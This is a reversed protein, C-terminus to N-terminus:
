PLAGHRLYHDILLWSPAGVELSEDQCHKQHKGSRRALRIRVDVTKIRKALDALRRFLVPRAERRVRRGRALTVSSIAFASLRVADTVFDDVLLDLKGAERGLGHHKGAPVLEGREIHRSALSEVFRVFHGRELQSRM